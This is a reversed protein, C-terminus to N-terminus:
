AGEMSRFVVFANKIADNEVQKVMAVYKEAQVIIKDKTLTIKLELKRKKEVGKANRQQTRM